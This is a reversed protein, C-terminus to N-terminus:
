KGGKKKKEDKKAKKDDKAPKKVETGEGAKKAAKRSADVWKGAEVSTVVSRIADFDEELALGFGDAKFVKTLITRGSETESALAFISAIQAALEEDFGQRAAIVENPIKDSLAVTRLQAGVEKGLTETCGSPAESDSAPSEAAFTAGAVAKGDLVAKCVATHDGAFTEEGFFGDLKLGSKLIQGRPFLYGSGSSKEVWVISQGKLDKLEKATANARVFIAARYFMGKRLAKAVPTVQADKSAQVYSLPTIWALDIEGKALAATLEDYTAFIKPTVTRKLASGLYGALAKGSEEASQQSYPASIGFTIAAPADAARAVAPAVVFSFSSLLAAGVLARM